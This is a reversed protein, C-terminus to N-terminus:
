ARIVESPRLPSKTQGVSLSPDRNVICCSVAERIELRGDWAAGCGRSSERSGRDEAWGVHVEWCVFVQSCRDEGVSIGWGGIGWRIKSGGNGRQAWASPAAAGKQPYREPTACPLNFLVFGPGESSVSFLWGTVVRV